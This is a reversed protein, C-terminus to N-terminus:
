SAAILSATEMRQKARPWVEPNVLREPREGTALLEVIQTAALTANRRRADHTVGATHFTAVVNGLSLLPHGPPPPEEDWVDLGAGALHGSSLARYLAMEDHIGGRATSIFISGPRMAAFAEANMIGLTSADRPCHLSVIDASRLLQNFSVPEAGRERMESGDLFPDFGIVRMGFARGLAATRSGAHGVGVLGLTRGRLEHGMLDERSGTSHAKMHRDSEPIRRMVSLMLGVAMEAVSDANGGAQNMVVVGAATCADIDITDCGSGSSSVAVLNPCRALLEATVFWRRPLEDKAATIQYVHAQSLRAWAEDDAGERQCTHLRVGPRESVIRNFAPDLWYDFRVVQRQGGLETGSQSM